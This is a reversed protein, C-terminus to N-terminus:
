VIRLLHGDLEGKSGLAQLIAEVTGKKMEVPPHRPIMTVRCETSGEYPTKGGCVAVWAEQAVAEARRLNDGRCYDKTIVRDVM